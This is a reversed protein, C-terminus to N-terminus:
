DREEWQVCGFDEAVEVWADAGDRGVAVAKSDRSFPVGGPNSFMLQCHGTLNQNSKSGVVSPGLRKFYRKCDKCRGM